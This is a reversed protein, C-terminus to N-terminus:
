PYLSPQAPSNRSMKMCSTRGECPLFYSKLINRTLTVRFKVAFFNSNRPRLGLKWMWTDTLSRYIGVNPGGIKRCCFLYVSWIFIYIEWLFMFTPIPVTAACNREQSYKNRIKPIKDKCHQGCIIHIHANKCPCKIYWNHAVLTKFKKYTNNNKKETQLCHTTHRM